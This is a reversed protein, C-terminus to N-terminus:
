SPGSAVTWLAIQSTRGRVDFEGAFALDEPSSLLARRTSDALLISHELTKTM